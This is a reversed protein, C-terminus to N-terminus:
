AEEVTEGNPRPQERGAAIISRVSIAATFITGALLLLAVLVGSALLAGDRTADTERLLGIFAGVLVALSPLVILATAILAFTVRYSRLWAPIRLM